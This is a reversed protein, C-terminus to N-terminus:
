QWQGTLVFGAWHYPHRYASFNKDQLLARQAGQLAQAKTVGQQRLRSYFEVMLATTAADDVRWLSALASRVGAQLAIGAMGLASKEDSIATECASLTLLDIGIRDGFRSRQLLRELQNIFLKGNRTQLFSEGANNSFRGHSALHVVSFDNQNIATELATQTFGDDLLLVNQGSYLTQLRVLEQQVCPLANMEGIAQALGGLLIAGREDNEAPLSNLRLGPSISLAYREILYQKGNHLAAFPLIRLSAAPMIILTHIRNADLKEQLPTILWQYLAQSVEMFDASPAIDNGED